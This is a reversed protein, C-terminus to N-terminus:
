KPPLPPKLHLFSGNQGCQHVHVCTGSHGSTHQVGISTMEEGILPNQIKKAPQLAVVGRERTTATAKFSGTKLDEHHMKWKFNIREYTMKVEWPTGDSAYAPAGGICM